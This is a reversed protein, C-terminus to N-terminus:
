AVFHRQGALDVQREILFNAFARPSLLKGSVQSASTLQSWAAQLAPSAVGRSVRVDVLIKARRFREPLARVSDKSAAGDPPRKSDWFSQAHVGGQCFWGVLFSTLVFSRLCRELRRIGLFTRYFYNM